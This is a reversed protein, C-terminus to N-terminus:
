MCLEECQAKRADEIVQEVLMELEVCDIGYKAAYEPDSVYLRWESV